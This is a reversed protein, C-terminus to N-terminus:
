RPKALEFLAMSEVHATHPFMDMVGAGLLRYGLEHVLVGADRALTSPYCSVYLIRRAGLRPLHPLVELAGSRPPDLLVQDFRELLWPENDLTGYLNAAVVRINDFGNAAANAQAREVLKPDGEVGTVQAARTALPLTFNGIGCFLDLVREDPQPDLLELARAVMLRNLGLNVQTFDQPGFHLKLTRPHHLSYSLDPAPPDLPQVSDLGGPQLYLIFGEAAAFARLQQLDEASPPSLVRLVLVCPGDGMSVEIQPLRDRISLSEILEALAEIRTGVQPHLVPCQHLDAVLASGQERFGVLVRGKKLVYKAGLRAKRRYGWHDAVLAPLLQEPQV